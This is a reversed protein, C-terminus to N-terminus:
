PTTPLTLHTYSVALVTQGDSKIQMAILGNHPASYPDNSAAASTTRFQIAGGEDDGDGRVQINAVSHGDLATFNLVGVAGNTNTNTRQFEFITDGSAAALTLKSQPSESGIGIKGASTIVMHPSDGAINTSASFFLSTANAAEDSDGVGIVGRRTGGSKFIIAKRRNDPAELEIYANSTGGDGELRLYERTGDLEIHLAADSAVTPNSGLILQGNSNIRVEEAGNTEFTITDDAPFRIATNTDGIHFISDAIGVGSSFNADGTFTSIGAVSLGAGIQVSDQATIIGTATINDVDVYSLTGGINVDGTVDLSSFYGAGRDSTGGFPGVFKTATIVGVEYNSTTSILGGTIKTQAM